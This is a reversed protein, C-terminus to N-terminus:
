ENRLMKERNKVGKACKFGIKVCNENIEVIKKKM